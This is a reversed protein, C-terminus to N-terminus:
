DSLDPLPGGRTVWGASKPEHGWEGHRMKWRKMSMVEQLHAVLLSKIKVSCLFASMCDISLATSTPNIQFIQFILKQTWESVAQWKRVWGHSFITFLRLQSQISPNKFVVSFDIKMVTEYFYVFHWWSQAQHQHNCNEYENSSNIQFIYWGDYFINEGFPIELFSWEPPNEKGSLHQFLSTTLGGGLFVFVTLSDSWQINEMVLDLHERKSSLGWTYKTTTKCCSALSLAAVVSSCCVSAASAPRHRLRRCTPFPFDKGHQAVPCKGGEGGRGEGTGCPFAKFSLFFSLFGGGEWFLAFRLSWAWSCSKRKRWPTRTKVNWLLRQHSSKM